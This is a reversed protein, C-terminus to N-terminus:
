SCRLRVGGEDAREGDELHGHVVEERQEAYGVGRWGGEQFSRLRRRLGHLRAAVGAVEERQVGEQPVAHPRHARVQPHLVQKPRLPDLHVLSHHPGRNNARSYEAVIRPHRHRSPAGM